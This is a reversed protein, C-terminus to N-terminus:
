FPPDEPLDQPQAPVPLRSPGRPLPLAPACQHEALIDTRDTGAPASAIRWASRRDLQPRGAWLNLEYVAIGAIRALAEGEPTLPEPDCDVSWAMIDDNLGRVVCAGCKRCKAPRAKRTAGTAIDIVGNEDLRRLLWAPLTQKANEARTQAATFLAPQM